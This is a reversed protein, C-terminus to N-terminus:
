AKRLLERVNKVEREIRVRNTSIWSQALELEDITSREDAVDIVGYTSFAITATFIFLAGGDIPATWGAFFLVLGGTLSIKGKTTYKKTDQIARTCVAQATDLDRLFGLLQKRYTRLHSKSRSPLNGDALFPGTILDHRIPILDPM